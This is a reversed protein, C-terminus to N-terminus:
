VRKTISFPAGLEAKAASSVVFCLIACLRYFTGNLRIPNGVNTSWGMFFHSCARSHAESESLYLTDSHVNLIMDLACFRITADLYTALYDLLQKAKERTNTTGKSQEIAISSLAMLVMIDVAQAYFLISGIVRQIEKIETPSLKPSIDIPLPAQAKAKYQKPSPAYQCPQPKTSMRHKYKILLKQIYGPMSINLTHTDYDWSLKIGCYLDNTWDKTLEYKPEICWILHDAHEKRM